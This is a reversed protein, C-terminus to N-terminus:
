RELYKTIASQLAPDKLEKLQAKLFARDKAIAAKYNLIAPLNEQIALRIYRMEAQSTDAAIAQEIWDKGKGFYALKTFPDKAYKAELMNAAGKYCRMLPTGDVTVPSLLQTLRLSSDRRFAAAEYLVRVRQPDPESVQLLSLLIMLIM